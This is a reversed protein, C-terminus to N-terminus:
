LFGCPITSMVVCTRSCCPVRSNGVTSRNSGRVSVDLFLSPLERLSILMHPVRRDAPHFMVYSDKDSLRGDGNSVVLSGM